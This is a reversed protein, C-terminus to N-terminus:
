RVHVPRDGPSQLGELLLEGEITLYVIISIGNYLHSFHNQYGYITQRDAIIGDYDVAFDVPHNRFAITLPVGHYSPPGVVM